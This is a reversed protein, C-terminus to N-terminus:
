EGRKERILERFGKVIGIVVGISLGMAIAFLGKTIAKAFNKEGNGFLLTKIWYFFGIEGAVVTGRLTWRKIDDWGFAFGIGYLPFFLALLIMGGLMDMKDVSEEQAMFFTMVIAVVIGVALGILASKRFKQEVSGSVKVNAVSEEPIMAGCSGCFKEGDNIINGCKSCHKSM